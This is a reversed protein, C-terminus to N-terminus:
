MTHTSHSHLRQDQYSQSITSGKWLKCHPNRGCLSVTEVKGTTVLIHWCKEITLWQNDHRNLECSCLTCIIYINMHYRANWKSICNTEFHFLLKLSFYRSTLYKMCVWNKNELQLPGVTRASLGGRRGVEMHLGNWGESFQSRQKFWQVCTLVRSCICKMWIWFWIEWCTVKTASKSCNFIGDQFIKQLRKLM